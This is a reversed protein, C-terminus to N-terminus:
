QPTPPAVTPEAGYELFCVLGAVIGQAVLERNNELLQRDANMFGTEIIAVPTDLSVEDFTHYFTMDRTEGFHRPLQTVNGYENILCRVLREDRGRAVGRAVPGAVAFGTAGGGEYEQCDNSHISLLVDARYGDLRPDFEELIEVEYGRRLLERAALTAVEVNIELETLEAIGDGNDDCVAGPDVDFSPDLPPGSHGAIIGIRTIVEDALPIATTELNLPRATVQAIRMKDLFTESQFGENPTWYSFITAVMLAALATLIVTKIFIWTSSGEQYLKEDASTSSRKQRRPRINPAPDDEFVPQSSYIPTRRPHKESDM